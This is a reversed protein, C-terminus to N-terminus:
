TIKRERRMSSARRTAPMDGLIPHGGMDHHNSDIHPAWGLHYTKGSSFVIYVHLAERNGLRGCVATTCYSSKTVIYDGDGDIRERVCRDTNSKSAEASDLNAKTEDFSAILEPHTIFLPESGEVTPDYNSNVEAERARVMVKAAMDFYKDMNELTCWEARTMELPRETGTM